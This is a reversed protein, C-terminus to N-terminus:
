NDGMDDASGKERAKSDTQIAKGVRRRQRQDAKAAKEAVVDERRRQQRSDRSRPPRTGDRIRGWVYRGDVHRQFQSQQDRTIKRHITDLSPM